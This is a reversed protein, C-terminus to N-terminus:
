YLRPNADVVTRQLAHYCLFSVLIAHTAYIHTSFQIEKILCCFRSTPREHIMRNTCGGYGGNKYIQVCLVPAMGGSYVLLVRM